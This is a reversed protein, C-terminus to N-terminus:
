QLLIYDECTFEQDTVKTYPSSYLAQDHQRQIIMAVFTEGHDAQGTVRTGPAWSLEVIHHCHCCNSNAGKADAM